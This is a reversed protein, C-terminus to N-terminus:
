QRIGLVFYAPFAFNNNPRPSVLLNVKQGVSGQLNIQTSYLYAIPLHSTQNVLVYDGPKNKVSRNYPELIGVLEIPRRKQADYYDDQSLYNNQTAWSNYLVKEIPLWSAMKDTIENSNSQPPTNDAISDTFILTNKESYPNSVKPAKYQEELIKLQRQQSQIESLLQSNKADLEESNQVKSELYSIKKKLQQEQITLLLEKARASQNPFDAYGSIIKKLNENVVDLNIETYNKHLETQSALYASNLLTNAEERRREMLSMMNSDGINDVYEKCVFFRTSKPPTIELWKSNLASVAGQVKDGSNLQAIIPAEITPELRVNVNNAEVVNDLVYTRYVFGKIEAPPQIAYFDDNEGVVILLDDKSLERLIPSELSPQLRMRVKNKTIKGTFSTFNGTQSINASKPSFEAADLHTTVASTILLSTLFYSAIHHM